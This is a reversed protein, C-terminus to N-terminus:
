WFLASEQPELEAINSGFLIQAKLLPNSIACLFTFLKKIILFWNWLEEIKLFEKSLKQAM